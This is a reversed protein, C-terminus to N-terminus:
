ASRRYLTIQWVAKVLESALLGIFALNAYLWQQNIAGLALIILVFGGLTFSGAVEGKRDIDNDREDKTDSAKPATIAIAIHAVAVIVVFLIIAPLLWSPAFIGGAASLKIVYVIGVILTACMLVWASKEQFSM